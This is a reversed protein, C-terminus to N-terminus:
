GRRRPHRSSHECTLAERIQIACRIARGPGDFTALVGDGTGDVLQGRAREILERLIRDHEDLVVKWRRDGIASLRETSGVIDTFMVSAFVRETAEPAPAGTLFEQIAEQVGDDERAWVFLDTGPIEKYRAAEISRALEQSVEPEMVPLTARHMVLTPVRILPLADRADLTSWYRYM